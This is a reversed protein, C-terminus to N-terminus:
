QSRLAFTALGFVPDYGIAFSQWEKDFRAGDEEQIWGDAARLRLHFAQRTKSMITLIGHTPSAGM